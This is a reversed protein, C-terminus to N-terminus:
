RHILHITSPILGAGSNARIASAATWFESSSTHTVFMCLGFSVTAFPHESVGAIALGTMIVCALISPWFFAKRLSETSSRRWAIMPGIGTLLVLGVGIQINIRNFFPSDVSIKEGTCSESLVPLM